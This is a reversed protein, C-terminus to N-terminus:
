GHYGSIFLGGTVVGGYGAARIPCAGRLHHMIRLAHKLILLTLKTISSINYEIGLYCDIKEFSKVFNLTHTLYKVHRKPPFVLQGIFRGGLNGGVM